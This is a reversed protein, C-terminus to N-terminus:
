ITARRVPTAFVHELTGTYMEERFTFSMGLLGSLTLSGTVMGIFVWPIYDPTGTLNNFSQSTAGGVLAKGQLIFPIMWLFPLIFWSVPWIPYAFLVKLGKTVEARLVNLEYNLKM